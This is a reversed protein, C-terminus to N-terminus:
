EQSDNNDDADTKENLNGDETEIIKGAMLDDIYQRAQEISSDYPLVVSAERGGLSYCPKKMPDGMIQYSQIDWSPMDSLQMQVLANIDDSSLNTEVSESVTDLVASFSTLIAPSCVKKLIAAIMRQQNRGRAFDGDIFSKRERVFALAEKANLVNEGKKIDFNGIKTTFDAPSNVTIGGIADVIKIFSTFNMRAYYNIEESMIDQLTDISEQLGYVGTHTFKDLQGNRHLPYYVDRPISILLVQHTTPNIAILMNVDSRSITSIDGYQDNGSVYTLFPKTTVDVNKASISGEDKLIQYIVRTDEDFTKKDQDILARFAEDLIIGDVKQTYLADLLEHFDKYDTLSINGIEKEIEKKAYDMAETNVSSVYGVNHKPLQRENRIDSEKLVIVSIARKQFTEASLLDVVSGMKYVYFSAVIMVCSLLVSFVQTIISRKSKPKKYFILFYEGILLGLLVIGGIMIYRAPVFKITYLMYLLVISTIIQFIYTVWNMSKELKSKM